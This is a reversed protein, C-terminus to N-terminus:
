FKLSLIKDLYSKPTCLYDCEELNSHVGFTYVLDLSVVRNGKKIIRFISYNCENLFLEIKNQRELRM